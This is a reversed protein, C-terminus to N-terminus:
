SRTKITISLPYAHIEVNLLLKVRRDRLHVTHQILNPKHLMHQQTILTNESKSREVTHLSIRPSVSNESSNTSTTRLLARMCVLRPPTRLSYFGTLYTVLM